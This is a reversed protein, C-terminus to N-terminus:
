LTIHDGNLTLIFDDNLTVIFNGPANTTTTTTFEVYVYLNINQWQENEVFKFIINDKYNYEIDIINLFYNLFNFILTPNLNNNALYMMLNESRGYGHLEVPIQTFDLKMKSLFSLEHDNLFTLINQYIGLNLKFKVRHDINQCSASILNNM